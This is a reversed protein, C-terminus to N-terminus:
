SQVTVVDVVDDRAAPVEDDAELEIYEDEDAYYYTTPDPESGSM